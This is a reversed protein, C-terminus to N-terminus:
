GKSARSNSKLGGTRTRRLSGRDRQTPSSEDFINPEEATMLAVEEEESGLPPPIYDAVQSSATAKDSAQLSWCFLTLM